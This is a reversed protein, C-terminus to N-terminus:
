PCFVRTSLVPLMKECFIWFVLKIDCCWSEWREHFKASNWVAPQRSIEVKRSNAPMEIWSLRKLHLDDGNLLVNKTFTRLSVDRFLLKILMVNPGKPRINLGGLWKAPCEKCVRGEISFPQLRALCHQVLSTRLFGYTLHMWSRHKSTSVQTIMKLKREPGVMIRFHFKRFVLGQSKWIQLLNTWRPGTLSTIKKTALSFWPFVGGMKKKVQSMKSQHKCNRRMEAKQEAIQFSYIDM